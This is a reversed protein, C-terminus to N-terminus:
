SRLAEQKELYQIFADISRNLVKFISDFDEEGGMFPDPVALADNAEPDFERMLFIKHRHAQERDWDEIDRRNNEDMAVIYDYAEFPKEELHQAISDLTIGNARAVRVTREDPAHGLHWTGTGASSVAVQDALGAERLKQNMIGEALPSRCINGLCVFLVQIM